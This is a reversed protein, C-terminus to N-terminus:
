SGGKQRAPCFGDSVIRELESTPVRVLRGVRVTSIRRLLVWRRVCGGTIKLERAFEDVTFLRPSKESTKGAEIM